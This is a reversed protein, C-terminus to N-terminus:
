LSFFVWIYYFESASLHLNQSYSLYITFWELKPDLQRNRNKTNRNNTKKEDKFISISIYVLKSDQAICFSNMIITTCLSITYLTYIIFYTSEHSIRDFCIWQHLHFIIFDLKIPQTSLYNFFSYRGLPFRHKAKHHSVQCEILQTM